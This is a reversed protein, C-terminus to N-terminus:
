FTVYQKEPTLEPYVTLVTLLYVTVFNLPAKPRGLPADLGDQEGPSIYSITCKAALFDICLV